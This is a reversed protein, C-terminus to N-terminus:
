NLVWFCMFAAWVIINDGCEGVDEHHHTYDAAKNETHIGSDQNTKVESGEFHVGTTAMCSQLSGGGGGGGLFCCCCCFFCFVVFM